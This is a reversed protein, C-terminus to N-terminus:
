TMGWRMVLRYGILLILSGTIAILFSRIDFGTVTGFNLATAIFGGVIAGVIGLAITIIFGRPDTGPMLLKAIAGAILGFLIWSLIGM